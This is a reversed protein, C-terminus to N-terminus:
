KEQPEVAQKRVWYLWPDDPSHLQENVPALAAWNTTYDGSKTKKLFLLFTGSERYTNAFCSGARGGPRVFTYPPKQNNFDDSESLYGPLTLNSIKEGRISELMKFQVKSDPVGTTYIEPNSPSKAYGVAQARIIVDAYKVLEVNTMMRVVSCPKAIGAWFCFGFLAANATKLRM